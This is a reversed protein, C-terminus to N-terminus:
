RHQRRGTLPLAKDLMELIDRSSLRRAVTRKMKTRMIKKLRRRMMMKRIYSMKKMSDRDRSTKKKLKRRGCELIKRRKMKRMLLRYSISVSYCSNLWLLGKTKMRKMGM